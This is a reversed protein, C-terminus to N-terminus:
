IVEVVFEMFGTRDSVYDIKNNNFYHLQTKDIIFHLGDVIIEADNPQIFEELTLKLKVLCSYRLQLRIFKKADWENLRNHLETKAADMISFM